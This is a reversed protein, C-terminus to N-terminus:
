ATLGLVWNAANTAVEHAPADIDIVVGNEDEELPELTALQSNLLSTPMFHGERHGMRSALLEPTGHAHVFVVDPAYSRILDRYSRKLASCGVVAGGPFEALLAGVHALWPWRDDDTLPIGASMKDINAQPHLADGDMYTLGLRAALLEGTTTKGSGSVGMVVVRAMTKKM